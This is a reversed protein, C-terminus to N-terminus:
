NGWDFLDQLRASPRRGVLDALGAPAKGKTQRARRCAVALLLAQEVGFLRALRLPFHSPAIRIIQSNERWSRNEGGGGRPGRGRTQTPSM